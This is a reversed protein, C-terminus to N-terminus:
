AWDGKVIETKVHRDPRKIGVSVFFDAVMKRYHRGAFFAEGFYRVERGCDVDPM